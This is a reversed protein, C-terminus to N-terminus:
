GGAAISASSTGCARGRAPCGDIDASAHVRLLGTLKPRGPPPGHSRATSASDERALSPLIGIHRRPGNQFRQLSITQDKPTPAHVLRADITSQPRLPIGPHWRV